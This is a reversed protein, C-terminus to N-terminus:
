DWMRLIQSMDKLQLHVERIKRQALKLEDKVWDHEICNNKLLEIKDYVRWDGGTDDYHGFVTALMDIIKVIEEDFEKNAQVRKIEEENM